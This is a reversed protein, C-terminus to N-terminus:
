SEFSPQQNGVVNSALAELCNVKNEIGIERSLQWRCRSARGVSSCRFINTTRLSSEYKVLSAGLQLTSSSLALGALVKGSEQLNLSV